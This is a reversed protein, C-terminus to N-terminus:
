RQKIIGMISLFIAVYRAPDMCNHVLIGNALYEHAGQVTLDYVVNLREEGKELHLLKVTTIAINPQAQIGVRINREAFNVHTSSTNEVLGHKHGRSEIGLLELKQRTGRRPVKLAQKGSNRQGNLITKSVYNSTTQSIRIHRSRNWTKPGIIGRTIIKTISMFVKKVSAMISNGCLGICACKTSGSTDKELMSTFYKETLHKSLSVVMGSELKSIETWGLNTKILHDPTCILNVDFTDFRMLYRFTKREGNNWIRVVPRFGKSTAVLDGVSLESIPMPGVITEIMTSGEFCHNHKDEPEEQPIGYKDVVRSYNQQENKLNTSSQTYYCKLGLLINIGSLISGAPKFAPITNEYGADIMAKIKLLQNNDCVHYAKKDLSLQSLRWKMLGEEIQQVQILTEMDLTERIQNESKYNLEHFYLAGDYYKAEVIGWPDVVGWDHGYYKTVDLAHYVHDPVEEWFFIRNPREAHLGLGYVTWNFLSASNKRENEICRILERLDSGKLGKQNNMFDYSRADAESLIGEEVLRSLKVPQYSLIKVKQEPPCFPNDRFTSHIVLARPDKALDDSWHGQKPNLDIMVFDETRMDLQDFVDKSIDYPESLWTVHGNYGHLRNAEDSGNIQIVSGNSFQYFSETKNFSCARYNPLQPYVEQMDKLVTAKCDQKTSRFVSLRKSFFMLAYLFYIQLISRTKSSRSSGSNIIYRYKRTGDPNRAFVADWNKQFVITGELEPM